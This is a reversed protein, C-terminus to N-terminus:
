ESEKSLDLRILTAYKSKIAKPLLKIDIPTNMDSTNYGDIKIHNHEDIDIVTYGQQSRQSTGLYNRLGSGLCAQSIYTMGEKYGPYYAHHHGSLYLTLDYKLLLSELKPDGIIDRERSETFPWIPLHSFAIKQRYKGKSQKLVKKLWLTQTHSLHGVITADLSIFLINNVEFAYYFPYHSREIFNVKPVHKLWQEQYIKRELNFQQSLSADHNGATVAFPLGAKLLPTSVNKHFSTWMAEVQPRKLLPRLRQGAVMDGTSIVINPKLDIIHAMVKPIRSHYHTSGYSGNLDSIVVIKTAQAFSSFPISLLIILFIIRNSLLLKRM